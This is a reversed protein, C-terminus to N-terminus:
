GGAKGEIQAEGCQFGERMYANPFLIQVIMPLSIILQTVSMGGDKRMSFLVEEIM